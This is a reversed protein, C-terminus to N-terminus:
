LPFIKAPAVNRAEVRVPDSALVRCPIPHRLGFPLYCGPVHNKESQEIALQFRDTGWDGNRFEAGTMPLIPRISTSHHYIQIPSDALTM